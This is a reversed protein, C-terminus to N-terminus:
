QKKNLLRCVNFFYINEKYNDKKYKLVTILDRDIMEKNSLSEQEELREKRPIDGLGGTLETTRKRYKDIQESKRELFNSQLDLFYAM